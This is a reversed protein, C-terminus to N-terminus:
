RERMERMDRVRVNEDECESVSLSLELPSTKHPHVEVGKNGNKAVGNALDKCGMKGKKKNDKENGAKGENMRM